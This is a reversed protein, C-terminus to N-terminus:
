GQCNMILRRVGSTIESAPLRFEAESWAPERLDDCGIPSLLKVGGGSIM